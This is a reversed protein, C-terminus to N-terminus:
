YDVQARFQAIATKEPIGNRNPAATSQTYDAMLRFNRGLYWNLGISDSWGRGGTVFGDELDLASRRMAIELAGYQRKPRVDGITGRAVSYRHREGTLLYSAQVYWGSFNSDGYGPRVVNMTMYEGQVTLPGTLWAGEYARRNLTTVGALNSTNYITTTTLGTEPSASVRFASGADVNRREQSVGFHLTQKNSHMPSWTLRGIVSRGTAATKGFEVNIPNGFYGLTASANKWARAVQAGQVLGPTLATPLARELFLTDNSASLEEMGMPATMQGAKFTYHELGSYSVWVSKWGRSVGGIDRDLM